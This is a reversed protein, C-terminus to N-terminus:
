PNESKELNIPLELYFTTGKNLESEFWINGNHEDVLNKIIWMGLGNSKEGGTGERCAESYKNFLMPQLSRPIGVGNDKVRVLVTEELKEVHLDIKGEKGTFKIANSIINTMIRLFKISDVCAYVTDHSHSFSFKKCIPQQVELYFDMVQQIVLVLDIREKNIESGATDLTEKKLFSQLLHITHTSIREIMSAMKNVEENNATKRAIGSSLMKVSGIPGRLDHSLIELTSNKWANIKQMNSISFKRATDDEAIGVLKIIIKEATMVPYIKLRLWREAGDPRLIRFALISHTKNKLFLGIHNKVYNWDEPHVIKCVLDADDMLDKTNWHTIAEFASNIFQFGNQEIDFIFYIDDSQRSLAEFLVVENNTMSSTNHESESVVPSTVM